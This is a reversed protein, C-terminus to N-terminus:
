KRRMEIKQYPRLYEIAYQWVLVLLAPVFLVIAILWIKVKM